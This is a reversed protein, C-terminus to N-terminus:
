INYFVKTKTTVTYLEYLTIKKVSAISEAVYCISGQTNVEGPVGFPLLHPADSELLICDLIMSRITRSKGLKLNTALNTFGFHDNQFERLWQESEYLSGTFCQLHIRHDRGLVKQCLNFVKM